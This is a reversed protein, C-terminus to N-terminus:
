SKRVYCLVGRNESFVEAKTLSYDPLLSDLARRHASSHYELLVASFRRGARVLPELIEIECGETDIKIIDAEPMTLPDRVEVHYGVDAVGGCTAFLSGEGSNNKGTFLPRLGPTGIAWDHLTIKGGLGARAVNFEFEAVNERLPEYAFVRSGPWRHAAWVSFAGVNAGLDLITLDSAFIPVDYEGSFVSALHPALSRSCLFPVKFSVLM